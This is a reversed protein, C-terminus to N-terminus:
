KALNELRTVADIAEAGSVQRSVQFRGDTLSLVGTSVAVAVAPYNLHGTSMDAVRPRESMKQRLDPKRQAILGIVRSVATALDARRVRNQPQFTHNEFADLVGANVVTAIWPAAWHNRVDTVVVQRTAAPRLLSELRIGLLAALEGRTIQPSQPLAKFEAPLRAERARATAAAIRQNLDATPELDYAKRYSALAAEFEQRSELIEGVEVLAAADGPDLDIAKRLHELAGAIDGQRREFVGLEHYLFASEPSIAIARAYAARAEDIRGAQAAARAREIVDQVNRFRLVDVRSRLSELSPDLTLAQEFAVLADGERKMGLLAQGRGVIAPVYVKDMALVADFAAVAKDYDKRALSVYGEGTRAPYFRRDQRLAQAFERSASGLDDGQLYRWGRDLAAAAASSRLAPPVTPSVFEAYKPVTSTPPPTRAACAAGALLLVTIVAL